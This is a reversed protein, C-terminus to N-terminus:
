GRSQCTPPIAFPARGETVPLAAALGARDIGAAGDRVFFRPAIQRYGLRTMACLEDPTPFALDMVVDPRRRGVSYGYDWKTHGPKFVIERRHPGRAVVEDAKGLLDLTDRESFYPTNGAAIVAVSVGPATHDRVALARVIELREVPLDDVGRDIWRKVPALDLAALTVLLLGVALAPARRGALGHGRVALLAILAAGLLAVVVRAPALPIATAGEYGIREPADRGSGQLLAAGLLIAVGAAAAATTAPVRRARSVLDDLGVAALISLLPIASAVFRNGFGLQEAYDGGVYVSYAFTAAVLAALLGVAAGRTRHRAAAVAIVALALMASLSTLSTFVLAVTGRRLRDGLPVGDLKLFYTNPVLEGYYALRYAVHGAVVVLLSGGVVALVRARSGAPARWLAFAAVIAAPVVLDDRTLVAAALVAALAAVRRREAAADDLAIRVALVVLLAGLGTEMGRLTWFVLPYALGTLVMAAAAVLPRGPVLLRTISRVVLMTAVLIAAGSVMVPLAVTASSFPLLHLVAMWLTWLLNTYGEVREGVQWVLGSGDALNRAYQMSIMADDVLTFYRTGDHVFDSRAIFAAYFGAAVVLVASEARTISTLANRM